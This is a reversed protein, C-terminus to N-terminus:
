PSEGFCVPELLLDGELESRRLADYKGAVGTWAVLRLTVKQGPKWHAPPLIKRDKMTLIFVLAQGGNLAAGDAARLDVLHFQMLYDKYPSNARPPGSAAAVTGAVRVTRGAPLELFKGPAAPSPPLGRSHGSAPPAAPAAPLEILKWDGEGLERMAFEWVVLKTGALRDGGRLLENRLAARTAYAGSDNRSIRDIPCQLAFSLQEALGACEGWGMAGVSYSNTYSDGLLLVEAGAAPQWPRGGASTVPHITVRQPAYLRQGAPLKLMVAIDGQNEVQAEQRSYATRAPGLAVHGRVFAALRVAAAEMAEPRWHTDTELFQTEGRRKAAIMADSEDFVLIGQSELDERLQGYSPNQLVDSRADFGAAFHEPHIMPKCAVPMVILAIGRAALQRHFDAIAPRPDPRVAGAGRSRRQLMAPDLFGRGTLYDVEPRYFLWPGRGCYAKENGAGGLGTLLWQTWPMVCASIVSDEELSNEFHRIRDVPPLLEWAERFSRVALVQSPAPLLGLVEYARPLVGAWSAARSGPESQRATLWRRVQVVHQVVLESLVTLVFLTCFLWGTARRVVTRKLALEAEEERSGREYM